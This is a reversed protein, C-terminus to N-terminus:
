NRLALESKRLEVHRLDKRDLQARMLALQGPDATPGAIVEVIASHGTPLRLNVEEKELPSTAPSLTQNMMRWEAESSFRFNKILLMAITLGLVLLLAMTVNATDSRMLEPVIDDILEDLCKVLHAEQEAPDYILPGLSYGQSEACQYLISRDFGIAFGAGRDGYDNWQSLLDWNPCLCTAYAALGGDAEALGEAIALIWGAVGSPDGRNASVGQVARALISRAYSVETLDRMQRTDTAWLTMSEVIGLGGAAKSYHYLV